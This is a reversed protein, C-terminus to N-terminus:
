IKPKTLAIPQDQQQTKLWAQYQEMYAYDSPPFGHGAGESVICDEMFREPMSNPCDALSLGSAATTFVLLGVSGCKKM